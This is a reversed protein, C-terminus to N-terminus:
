CLFIMQIDFMEFRLQYLKVNKFHPGEVFKWNTGTASHHDCNPDVCAFHLHAFWTTTFKAAIAIFSIVQVSNFQSSM